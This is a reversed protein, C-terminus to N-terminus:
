EFNTRKEARYVHIKYTGLIGSDVIQASSFGQADLEDFIMTMDQNEYVFLYYKNKKNLLPIKNFDILQIKEDQYYWPIICWGLHDNKSALIIDTNNIESTIELTAQLSNNTTKEYIYIDQYEPIFKALLYIWLIIALIRESRLKSVVIALVMWAVTSTAYIYRLVFVPRILESYSIAFIITGLICFIGSFGLIAINSIRIQNFSVSIYLKKERNIKTNLINTEYLFFLAIAILLLIWATKTSFSFSFLYNLSDIFTPTSSVWFSNTTRRVTQLFILTWPLYCLFTCAWTMLVAKINLKKLFFASVMIILYFFAVTVMAFYHTYAAGLSFLIFFIYSKAKQTELIEWLEYFSMLVFLGAWSYMRVEMNYSVANYSIGIFTIMIISVKGGFKNWFLSLSLIMIILCPILSLGHYAWGHNGFIMHIIKLMYYYLPPHVDNAAWSTISAFTSNMNSLTGVEDGWFNNDFIRIFNLYFLIAAYICVGLKTHRSKFLEKPMSFHMELKKRFCYEICIVTTTLTMSLLIYNCAFHSYNNLKFFLNGTSDFIYHLLFLMAWNIGSVHFIYSIINKLINKHNQYIKKRVLMLFLPPVLLSILAIM